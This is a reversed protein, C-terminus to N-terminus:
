RYSKTSGEDRSFGLRRKLFGFVRRATTLPVGAAPHDLPIRLIRARLYRWGRAKKLRGNVLLHTAHTLDMLEDPRALSLNAETEPGTWAPGSSNPIHGYDHNQHIVTVSPSIDIVPIRRKRAAHILWNDWPPRGVAFPPMEWETTRPWVFFDSGWLPEPDNLRRAHNQLNARVHDDALDIDELVHLNWRRGVALFTTTEIAHLSRVFDDFLMIDCNVYCLLPSRTLGAAQQFADSLLPTGLDTRKIHPSHLAGCAKVAEAVGPETGFVIVQTNPLRSWSRLANMQSRSTPGVFPKPIGFITVLHDGVVSGINRVTYDEM